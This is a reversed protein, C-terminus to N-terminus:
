VQSIIMDSLRTAEYFRAALTKSDSTNKSLFSSDFDFNCKFQEGLWEQQRSKSNRVFMELSFAVEIGAVNYPFGFKNGVLGEKFESSQVYEVARKFKVSRWFPLDKYNGKLIGFGYLNFQHYGIAKNIDESKGYTQNELFSRAISKLGSWSFPKRPVILHRILGSKFINFNIDLREAFIQIQRRIEPYRKGDFMSGVAAFWLQHNFTDDLPLIKGEIERKHWLGRKGDFPHLLFVEAALESLDSRGTYKEGMLLAEIVWAQGILGNCFDKGPKNRCWFTFGNPRAESSTLYQLARIAAGKFKNKGTLEFAKLLTIIWHATNRVPTEKDHYPGNHGPPFSGDERQIKLAAESSKIIVGSLKVKM